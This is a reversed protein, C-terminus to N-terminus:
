HRGFTKVIAHGGKGITNADYWFDISKIVRNKGEIDIDRSSGGAPITNRLELKQDEGNRFHIVVRQFDVAHASVELKIANFSGRAGTVTITDHDIKDTVTRSGLLTWAPGRARQAALSAACALVMLTLVANRISTRSHM